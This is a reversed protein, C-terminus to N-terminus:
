FFYVNSSQLCHRIYLWYYWNDVWICGGKKKVSFDWTLEPNLIAGKSKLFDTENCLIFWILGSVSSCGGRNTLTRLIPMPGWVPWCSRVYLKRPAEPFSQGRNIFVPFNEARESEEQKPPHRQLALNSTAAVIKHGYPM